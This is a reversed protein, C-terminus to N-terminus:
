PQALGRTWGPRGSPARDGRAACVDPLGGLVPPVRFRSHQEYSYAMGLLEADSRARGILTVAYPAEGWAPIGAPVTIAPFGAFPYIMSQLSDVGAIVDLDEGDFVAHLYARAQQRNSRAIQRAETEGLPSWLCDRLRDQGWPAYRMPDDDNFAIVDELTRTPADTAALYANVGERLGWNFVPVFGPGELAFAPPRLAVVRAGAAKMVEAAEGLGASGIIWEDSGGDGGEVGIVGVQKGRLADWNLEAVFDTGHLGEARTSHRDRPDRVAAMATLTAAVDTVTRGIPGATDCEDSIPAVRDRSVLGLTPRMGVVSARASPSVISGMTETGVTVAALNM